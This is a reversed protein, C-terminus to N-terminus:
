NKKSRNNRFDVGNHDMDYKAHCPRCLAMWDEKNQSYKHDKNAWHIKNATLNEKGCSECKTPKPLNKRVWTHRASYRKEGWEKTNAEKSLKLNGTLESAQAYSRRQINARKMWKRILNQNTSFEKALQWTSMKMEHYLFALKDVNPCEKKPCPNYKQSQINIM